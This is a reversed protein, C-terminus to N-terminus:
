ENNRDELYRTAGQWVSGSDGIAVGYQIASYVFKKAIKVSDSVSKNQALLATIAASFTCGAGNTITTNLKESNLFYGQKENLLYDVAVNGDLRNGGKIVVNPCGLEQIRKAAAVLDDKTTIKMGSLQEAESLNPTTLFAIPLLKERVAQLYEAQNSTIGEKFVLVPDVVLKMPQKQLNEVVLDLIEVTGLLGTKAYKIPMQDLISSLQADILEPKITNIVLDDPFINAISTIVSVGFVNLEEFTKLDAQLGGGALSDSGAITLVNQM